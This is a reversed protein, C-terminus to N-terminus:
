GYQLCTDRLRHVLPALSKHKAVLSLSLCARAGPDELGIFRVHDTKYQSTVGPVLSIGMGSAVLSVLTQVQIAEQNIRPTFGASYCLALAVSHLGPVKTSGYLVFGEARCEALSISNRSAFRHHAPVALVLDDRQLVWDDLGPDDAIPGRVVCADLDHSLVLQILDVTSGERLDLKVAPYNIRFANLALPLLAYTASGVFGLRLTGGEGKAVMTAARCAQSAHYIAARADELMAEGAPTLSVGRAGRVFLPVGVEQELRQISVSLAPQAVFLVDAARRFSGVEAITIFQQFQRLSASM